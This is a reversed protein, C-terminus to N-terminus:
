KNIKKAAYFELWDHNKKVNLSRHLNVWSSLSLLVQIQNCISNRELDLKSNKGDEMEKKWKASVNLEAIFSAFIWKKGFLLKVSFLVERFM